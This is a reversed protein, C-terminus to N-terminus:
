AARQVTDRDLSAVSEPRLGSPSQWKGLPGFLVGPYGAVRSAYRRYEDGLYFELRRDKLVSGVGIYVTWVGTLLAHDLTMQPTFWILGLFSLYVPHRLWRYAGQQVLGRRPPRQRRLWYWWTTWGTQYGLGALSLSYFLALWSCYFAGRMALAGAGTAQWVIRPSCQWFDIALWLGACTAACFLTGYLASPFHATIRARVRPLLLASHLVSFQLALLLDVAAWHAGVTAGGNRLFWFLKWVTLAFVAQTALGFVIGFARGLDQPVPQSEAEM